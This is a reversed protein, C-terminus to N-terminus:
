NGCVRHVVLAMAEFCRGVLKRCTAPHRLDTPMEVEREQIIGQRGSRQLAKPPVEKLM